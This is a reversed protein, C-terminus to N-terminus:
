VSPLILTPGTSGVKAAKRDHKALTSQFLEFPINGLLDIWFWGTNHTIPNGYRLNCDVLSTLCLETDVALAPKLLNYAFHTTHKPRNTDHCKCTTCSSRGSIPSWSPAM